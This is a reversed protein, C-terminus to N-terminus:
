FEIVASIIGSGLFAAKPTGMGIAFYTTGVLLFDIDASTLPGPKEFTGLGRKVKYKNFNSQINSAHRLMDVGCKWELIGGQISLKQLHNKLISM